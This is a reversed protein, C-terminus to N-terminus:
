EQMAGHIGDVNKIVFTKVSHHNSESHSSGRKGFTGKVQDILFLVWFKKKDMFQVIILVYNNLHGCLTKTQEYLSNLIDENKAIFMSNIIPSLYEM